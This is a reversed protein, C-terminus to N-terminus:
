GTAESSALSRQDRSRRVSRRLAISADWLSSLLRGPGQVWAHLLVASSGKLASVFLSLYQSASYEGAYISLRGKCCRADDEDDDDEMRGLGTTVLIPPCSRWASFRSILSVTPLRSPDRRGTCICFGDNGRSALVFVNLRRSTDRPGCRVAAVAAAVAESPLKHPSSSRSM